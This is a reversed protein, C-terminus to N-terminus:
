PKRVLLGISHLIAILILNQCNVGLKKGTGELAEYLKEPLRLTIQKNM